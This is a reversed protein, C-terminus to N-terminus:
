KYNNELNSIAKEAQEATPFIDRNLDKSTYYAFDDTWIEYEQSLLSYTVETVTKAEYFPEKSNTYTKYLVDGVKCPLVVVGNELLYDALRERREDDTMYRSFAKEQELLEILRERM